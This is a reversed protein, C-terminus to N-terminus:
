RGSVPKFQDRSPVINKALASAGSVMGSLNMSIGLYPKRNEDDYLVAVGANIGAPLVIKAIGIGIIPEAGSGALAFCLSGLHIKADLETLAYTKKANTCLAVAPARLGDSGKLYGAEDHWEVPDAHASPVALLVLMMTILIKM